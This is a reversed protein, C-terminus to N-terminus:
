YTCMHTSIKYITEYTKTYVIFGILALSGHSHLCTYRTPNSETYRSIIDTRDDFYPMLRIHHVRISLYSLEHM